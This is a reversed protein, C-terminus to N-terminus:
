GFGLSIRWLEGVLTGNENALLEERSARVFWEPFKCSGGTPNLPIMFDGYESCASDDNAPELLRYKSYPVGSCANDVHFYTWNSHGYLASQRLRDMCYWMTDRGLLNPQTTLRHVDNTILWHSRQLARTVLTGGPRSAMAWTLPKFFTRSVGCSPLVPTAFTRIGRGGGIIPITEDSLADSSSAGGFAVFDHTNLKQMLPALDRMVLVDADLFLGGYRSLLEWRMLDVRQSPSCKIWVDTRLDPIYKYITYRDLQVIRFSHACHRQVTELCVNQYEPRHWQHHSLDHYLWLPPRRSGFPHNSDITTAQYVM